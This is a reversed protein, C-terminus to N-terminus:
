GRTLHINSQDVNVVFNGCRKVLQRSDNASVTGTERNRYRTQPAETIWMVVMLNSTMASSSENM